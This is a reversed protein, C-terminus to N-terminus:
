RVRSDPLAAHAVSGSQEKGSQEHLVVEPLQFQGGEEPLVVFQGGLAGSFAGIMGVVQEPEGLQFEGVAVLAHHFAPDARRAEGGGLAQVGKVEGGDGRHVFRQHHLQGPAFVDIVMLVDDGDPVAAGALGVDGQAQTQGGALPAQRHAEGGGCCQDVFQHLRLSSRRSSLRCRCSDRWLSSMM